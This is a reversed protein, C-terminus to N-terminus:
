RRSGENAGFFTVCFWFVAAAGILWWSADPTLAWVACGGFAGFILAMIVEMILNFRRQTM